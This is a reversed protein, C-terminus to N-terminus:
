FGTGASEDFLGGREKEAGASPDSHPCGGEPLGEDQIKQYKEMQFILRNLGAQPGPLYYDGLQKSLERYEKLSISGMSALGATLLSDTLQGLMALGELQKKLKKTRASKSGSRAKSSKGGKKETGASGEEGSDQIGSKGEREEAAQEAKRERAEKKM